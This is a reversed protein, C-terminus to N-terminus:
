KDYIKGYALKCEDLLYRNRKENRFGSGHIFVTIGHIPAVWITRFKDWKRKRKTFVNIENSFDLVFM